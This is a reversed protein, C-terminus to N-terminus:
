EFIAFTENKLVIQKRIFLKVMKELNLDSFKFTNEICKIANICFKKKLLHLTRAEIEKNKNQNSQWFLILQSGCIEYNKLSNRVNLTNM